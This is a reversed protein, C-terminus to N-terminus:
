QGYRESSIKQHFKKVIKVFPPGIKTFNDMCEMEVVKKGNATYKSGYIDWLVSMDVWCGM